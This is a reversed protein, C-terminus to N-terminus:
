DRLHRVAEDRYDATESPGSKPQIEEEPLTELVQFSFQLFAFMPALVLLRDGTFIISKGNAPHFLGNRYVLIILVNEPLRLDRIAKGAIVAREPVEIENLEGQLKDSKELEIPYKVNKRGKDYLGLLKAVAPISTGQILVSVIVTFFVIYFIDNARSIGALLPFTSLIIPAAGRLGIWSVLLKERIGIKPFFLFSAFVSVPRAVFILFLTSFIGTLATQPIRSPLILLGLCLFMLVQAMWSLNDHYRLLNRKYLIDSNGMYIGLIYVALFPSGGLVNSIGYTFLVLAITLASYVGEYDLKIFRKLSYVATWAIAFGAIGGIAFQRVLFFVLDWGSGSPTQILTIIGVTLAVSMPDNSASEFELLPKINGKLVVDRSNLVSFVSAADTASLIAGILFGTALPFGLAFHFFVGMLACSLLVGLTSLSIGPGFVPKVMRFQTGFGGSFIIFSLAIVGIEKATEANDFRIHGIGETGALIGILLFLVLSPVGLKESALSGVVSAFLLVAVVILAFDM